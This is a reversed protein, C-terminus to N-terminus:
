ILTAEVLKEVLKRAADQGTAEKIMVGSEKKAPVFTKTVKALSGKLGLKAPDIGPLDAPTLVDIKAKNAEMKGKVSAFRPENITKTVTCLAPLQAEVVEYGDDTERNVVVKGGDVQIKAAYTLQAIGLQQALAPGVQATESDIAQKGCIILDFNGLKKIANALIYSTTYTDSGAFAPDSILVAKTAGVSICEKLAKKAQDPGMCLATVTGGHAEKLQVAAELAHKDFPNVINPLGDRVLTNSAPDMKVDTTDPVQKICVLIDM